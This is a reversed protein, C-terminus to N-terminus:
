LSVNKGDHRNFERQKREFTIFLQHCDNGFRNEGGSQAKPNLIKIELRDGITKWNM